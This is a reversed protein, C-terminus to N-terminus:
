FEDRMPVMGIGADTQNFPLNLAVSTSPLGLHATGANSKGDIDEGPVTVLIVRWVSDDDDELRALELGSITSGFKDGVEAVGPTGATDQHWSAALPSSISHGDESTRSLNVMGAGSRGSLTEGPASAVLHRQGGDTGFEGLLVGAGYADNKELGGPVGPSDQTTTHGLGELEMDFDEPTGPIEIKAWSVLGAGNSSGVDEGPAGIGVIFVPGFTAFADVSSGFLDGAEAVGGAGPSNQSIAQLNGSQSIMSLSGADTASGIDEHPAGILLVPFDGSGFLFRLAEGFRDGTEATGGSPTGTQAITNVYGIEDISQYDARVVHGADVASGIDRGPAGFAIAQQTAAAIVSGFGAGAQAGGDVELSDEDFTTTVGDFGGEIGHLLYARGAGVKGGVIAGPSGVVIDDCLDSDRPDEPDEPDPLGADRWVSVAAGFKAGAQSTLGVDDATVVTRSEPAHPNSNFEDAVNSFVVIAGADTKGPLDYSPVGVVVDPGGGDFDVVGGGWCDDEVASVSSPAAVWVTTLALLVALLVRTRRVRDFRLERLSM